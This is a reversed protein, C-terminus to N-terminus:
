KLIGTAKAGLFALVSAILGSLSSLTILATVGGQHRDMFTTLRALTADQKDFRKDIGAKFDDLKEAFGEVKTEARTLRDQQEPTM